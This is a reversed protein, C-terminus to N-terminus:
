RQRNIQHDRECDVADLAAQIVDLNASDPVIARDITVDLIHQIESAINAVSSPVLVAGLRVLAFWAVLFEPCNALRVVVFDPGSPSGM